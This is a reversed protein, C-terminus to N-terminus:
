WGLGFQLLRGWVACGVHEGDDWSDDFGFSRM